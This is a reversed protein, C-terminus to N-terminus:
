LHRLEPTVLGLVTDPGPVCLSLSLFHSQSFLFVVLCSAVSGGGVTNTIITIVKNILSIFVSLQLYKYKEEDLVHTTSSVAFEM